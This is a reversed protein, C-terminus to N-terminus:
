FILEDEDEDEENFESIDFMEDIEPYASLLADIQDLGFEHDELNHWVGAFGIGPEFYYAKVEYGKEVLAKYVGIPPSWASEFSIEIEDPENIKVNESEIEVEWKTGWNSIRFDYWNKFGYKELNIKEKEELEIQGPTGKGFVGATIDLEGPQPVAFECFENETIAKLVKALMASDAHKIKVVNSCWNPM